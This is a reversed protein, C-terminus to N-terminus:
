RRRRGPTDLHVRGRTPRPASPRPRRSPVTPERPHRRPLRRPRRPPRRRRAVTTAVDRAATTASARTAAATRPHPERAQYGARDARGPVRPPAQGKYGGNFATTVSSTAVATTGAGPLWGTRPRRAGPLWRRDDRPQSGGSRESDQYGGRDDRQQYGGRDDRQRTGVATVPATPTGDRTATAALPIPSGPPTDRVPREGRERRPREDHPRHVHREERSDSVWRKPRDNRDDRNSTTGRDCGSRAGPYRPAATTAAPRAPAATRPVPPPARAARTTAHLAGPVGQPRRPDEPDWRPSREARPRKTHGGELRTPAPRASPLREESRRASRPPAGEQPGQPGRVEPATTWRAKKPGYTGNPM